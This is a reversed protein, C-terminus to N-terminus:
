ACGAPGLGVRADRAKSQSSALARRSHPATASALAAAMAAKMQALVEVQCTQSRGVQAMVLRGVPWPGCLGEVRLARRLGSPRTSARWSRDTPLGVRAEAPFFSAPSSIFIAALVGLQTGTASRTSRSTAARAQDVRIHCWARLMHLAYGSV